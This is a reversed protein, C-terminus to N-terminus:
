RAREKAVTTWYLFCGFVISLLGCILLLEAPTATKAFGTTAWYSGIPASTPAQEVHGEPWSLQLDVLAPRELKRFLDQMRSGVQEREAIFTYSGRGAVAAQELFYSNPAAGARDVISARKGESRAQAYNAQAQAKEQIDGRLHATPVCPLLPGDAAGKPHPPLM